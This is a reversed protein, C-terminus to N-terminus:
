KKQLNSIREVVEKQAIDMAQKPTATKKAITNMATTVPSWVMSMEPYNPMPVAVDVQKRFAALIPDKSVQPDTYVAKNAPTQRGELALVKAAPVDTVYKIFEFAADKNKSPAAIYMGEVTM